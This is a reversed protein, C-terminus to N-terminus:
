YFYVLIFRLLSRKISGCTDLHLHLTGYDCLYFFVGEKKEEEKAIMGIIWYM